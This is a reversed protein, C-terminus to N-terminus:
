LLMPFLVASWTHSLFTNDGFRLCFSSIAVRCEYIRWAVVSVLVM